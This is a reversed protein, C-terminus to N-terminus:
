LNKNHSTGSFIQDVAFNWLRCYYEHNRNNTNPEALNHDLSKRKEWDVSSGMILLIYSKSNDLIDSFSLHNSTVLRIYLFTFLGAAAWFGPCRQNSGGTTQWQAVVVLWWGWLGWFTRCLHCSHKLRVGPLWQVTLVRDPTSWFIREMLFSGMSLPKRVRFAWLM